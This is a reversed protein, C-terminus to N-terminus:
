SIAPPISQDQSDSHLVPLDAMPLADCDLLVYECGHKRAYRMVAVLDAPVLL